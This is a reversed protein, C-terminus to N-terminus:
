AALLLSAGGRGAPRQTEPRAFAEGHAAHEDVLEALPVHSVLPREVTQADLTVMHRKVAAGDASKRGANRVAGGHTTKTKM